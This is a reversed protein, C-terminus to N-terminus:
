VNRHFPHIFAGWLRWEATVGIVVPVMALFLWFWGPRHAKHITHILGPVAFAIGVWLWWFRLIRSGFDAM